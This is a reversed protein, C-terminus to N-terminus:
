RLDQVGSDVCHDLVLHFGNLNDLWSDGSPHSLLTRGSIPVFSSLNSCVMESQKSTSYSSNVQAIIEVAVATFM